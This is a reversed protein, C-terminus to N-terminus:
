IAQEASQAQALKEMIDDISDSLRNSLQFFPMMKEPNDLRPVLTMYVNAEEGVELPEKETDSYASMLTREACVLSGKLAGDTILVNQLVYTSGNVKTRLSSAKTKVICKFIMQENANNENNANNANKASNANM